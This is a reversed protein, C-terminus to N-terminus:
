ARPRTFPYEAHIREETWSEESELREDIEQPYQEYYALAAKLQQETLWDYTKRLRAYDKGVELWTGVVEWVDLGTGAIAARRGIPGDVFVIGPARRMRVAEDLLEVAAASWTAGLRETERDIEKDLEEPLLLQRAKIAM